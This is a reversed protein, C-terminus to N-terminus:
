KAAGCKVRGQTICIVARINALWCVLLYPNSVLGIHRCVVFGFAVRKELRYLGLQREKIRSSISLREATTPTRAQQQAIRWYAQIEVGCAALSGAILAWKEAQRRGSVPVGNERTVVNREIGLAVRNGAHVPFPGLFFEILTVV